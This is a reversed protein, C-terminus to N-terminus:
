IFLFVADEIDLKDLFKPYVHIENEKDALVMQNILIHNECCLCNLLLDGM